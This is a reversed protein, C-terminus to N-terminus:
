IKANAKREEKRITYFLKEGVENANTKTHMNKLNYSYLYIHKESGAQLMEM